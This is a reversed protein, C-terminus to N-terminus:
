VSVAKGIASSANTTATTPSDTPAAVRTMPTPNTTSAPLQHDQAAEGVELPEPQREICPLVPETGDYATARGPSEVTRRSNVGSRSVCAQSSRSQPTSPKAVPVVANATVTAHHAPENPPTVYPNQCRQSGISSPVSVSALLM